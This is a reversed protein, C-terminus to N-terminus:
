DPINDRPVSEGPQTEAPVSASPGPSAEAPSGSGSPTAVIAPPEPPLPITGPPVPHGRTATTQGRERRGLKGRENPKADGLKAEGPKNGPPKSEAPKNDAPKNDAPKNDVPKSEGPKNDAPKSEGAENEGPKSDAPKAAERTAAQPKGSAPSEESPKAAQRGKQNAPKNDASVPKTDSSPAAARETTPKQPPGSNGGGGLVYAALASAQGRNSTYHESLFSALTGSNRGNALGRTGKHCAACTDSFIQAASKGQDIDTQAQALAPALATLFGIVQAFRRIVGFEL